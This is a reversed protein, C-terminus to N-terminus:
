EKISSDLNLTHCLFNILELIQNSYEIRSGRIVPFKWENELDTYRKACLKIERNIRYLEENKIKENM